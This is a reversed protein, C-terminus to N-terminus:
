NYSRSSNQLNLMYNYIKGLEETTSDNKIRNARWSIVHINDIVYGNEPIIKDISPSNEERGRFGHADLTGNYNLKSGLMPCYEPLDILKLAETREEKDMGKSGLIRNLWYYKPEKDRLFNKRAKIHTYLGFKTLVQYIRQKSVGYTFGIEKITHGDNLMEQIKPLREVWASM